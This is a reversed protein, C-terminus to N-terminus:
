DQHDSLHLNAAAFAAKNRVAEPLSEDRVIEDLTKIACNVAKSVYGIDGSAIQSITERTKNSLEM